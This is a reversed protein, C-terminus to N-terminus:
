RWTTSRSRPMLERMTTKPTSGIADGNRGPVPVFCRLPLGLQTGPVRSSEPGHAHKAAGSFSADACPCYSARPIPHDNPSRARRAAHTLLTVRMAISNASAATEGHVARLSVVCNRCAAPAILM